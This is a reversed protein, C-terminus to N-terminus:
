ADKRHVAARAPSTEVDLASLAEAFSAPDANIALAPRYVRGLEESDAHVHVLPQEPLPIDMLTYGSSPMESFRGGVLLV